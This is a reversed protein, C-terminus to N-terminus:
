RHKIDRMGLPKKQKPPNKKKKSQRVVKLKSKYSLDTIDGTM